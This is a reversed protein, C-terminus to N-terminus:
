ANITVHGGCDADPCQLEAAAELAWQRSTRFIFGCEDCECKIMRTSQKKTGTKSSKADMAAHPIPGLADLIPQAWERWTDGAITATMKGELGLATACKRFPHGHGCELGVAAHVLEHTLVDAVRASDDLNPVVFIEFHEDKSVVSSWCQGIAKGRTGQSTFGVSMRIKEPLPFGAAKFHKRARKAFQNLWQERTM